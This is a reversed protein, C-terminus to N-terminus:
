SKCGQNILFKLEKISRCVWMRRVLMLFGAIVFLGIKGLYNVNLFKFRLKIIGLIAMRSNRSFFHYKVIDKILEQLILISLQIQSRHELLKQLHFNCLFQTKTVFEFQRNGIDRCGSTTSRQYKLSYM